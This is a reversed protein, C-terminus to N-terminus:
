RAVCYGQFAEASNNLRTSFLASVKLWVARMELTILSIVRQAEAALM